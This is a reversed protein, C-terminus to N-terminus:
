ERAEQEGHFQECPVIWGLERLLEDAVAPLRGRLFREVTRRTARGSRRGSLVQSLHSHSEVALALVALRALSMRRGDVVQEGLLWYFRALDRKLNEGEKKKTFTM